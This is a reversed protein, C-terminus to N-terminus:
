LQAKRNEHNFLFKTSSQAVIAAWWDMMVFITIVQLVVTLCFKVAQRPSLGGGWYTPEQEKEAQDPDISGDLLYLFDVPTPTRKWPIPFHSM